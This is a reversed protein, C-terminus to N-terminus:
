MLSEAIGPFISRVATHGSLFLCESHCSSVITEMPDPNKAAQVSM